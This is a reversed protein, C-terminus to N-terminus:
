LNFLMERYIPLPWVTVDVFSEAHDCAARLETLAECGQKAMYRAEEMYDDFERSLVTEIREIGKTIQVMTEQYNKLRNKLVVQSLGAANFNVSAAGVINVQKVVAPFIWTSALSKLTELEIRKTEIYNHAQIQQRSQLEQKNLVGYTEFLKVIEKNDFYALADATNPIIPLKRKKAEKHWAEGYNNGDFRIRKTEKIVKKLVELTRNKFSNGTLKKSDKKGKLQSLVYDLGAAMVLNIATTPISVNISSGAARMEFKNGTFAIPSTRNRDTNDMAIKPLQKIGVDINNFSGDKSEKGKEIENLLNELYSGLFVSMIAPPAENAGLRHDNGADAVSVRLLAGYKNVGYLFAGLFLLFQINHKPSNGPELLNNGDSDTLSWNVHKGGGNIQDFPKEHFLVALDHKEALGEMIDMMQLNHDIAINAKEFIPALEYQAPAVENHRTKAPIGHAFCEMDLDHMFKLVRSKISGFYHDDLQQHRAPLRGLLTRGSLILDPRKRLYSRDIVFYEQEPGINTDVWKASKNGLVKLLELAKNEVVSLSRLLPTKIDLVEGHYSLFVSPIVLTNADGEKMIFAPSSPDWATYGRAEFTTRMGGSPFSSADPEGQILQKGSFREIVSGDHDFSLFADHKEAAGGRQPQFWHTFHTAGLNIAWEKMGHAVQDAIDRDLEEGFDAARILKKRTSSDLHKRMAERNFTLYGFTERLTKKNEM